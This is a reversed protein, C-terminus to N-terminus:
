PGDNGDQFDEDFQEEDDSDGPEDVAFSPIPEPEGPEHGQLWECWEAHRKYVPHNRLSELKEWRFQRYLRTRFEGVDYGLTRLLWGFQMRSPVADMLWLDANCADILLERRFIRTKIICRKRYESASEGPKTKCRVRQWNPLKDKVFWRGLDDVAHSVLALGFAAYNDHRTTATFREDIDHEWREANEAVPQLAGRRYTDEYYDRPKGM